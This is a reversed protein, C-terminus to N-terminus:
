AIGYSTVRHSATRYSAIRGGRFPVLTSFHCAPSKRIQIPKSRLKSVKKFLTNTGQNRGSTSPDNEPGIVVEGEHQDEEDEDSWQEKRAM